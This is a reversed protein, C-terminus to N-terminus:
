GFYGAPTGIQDILPRWDIDIVKRFDFQADELAACLGKYKQRYIEWTSLYKTRVSAALSDDHAYKFLRELYLLDYALLQETGTEVIYDRAYSFETAHFLNWPGRAIGDRLHTATDVFWIGQRKDYLHTEFVNMHPKVNEDVFLGVAKIEREARHATILADGWFAQINKYKGNPPPGADEFHGYTILGRLFADRGLLMYQIRQAFECLFMVFVGKGHDSTAETKNYVLLTDSFNIVGFDHDEHVNAKDLVRFLDPLIEPRKHVLESFGLLDIYALFRDAM